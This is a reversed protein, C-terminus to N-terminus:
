RYLLGEDSSQSLLMRAFAADRDDSLLKLEEKAVVHFLQRHNQLVGSLFKGVHSRPELPSNLSSFECHSPGSSAKVKLLPRRRLGGVLKRPFFRLHPKPSSSLPCPSSSSTPLTILTSHHHYQIVCNEMWCPQPPVLSFQKKKEEKKKEGEKTADSFLLIVTQNPSPIHNQLIVSIPIRKTFPYPKLSKLCSPDSNPVFTSSEHYTRARIYLHTHHYKSISLSVKVLFIELSIKYCIM